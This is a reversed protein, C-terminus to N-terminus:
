KAISAARFEECSAELNWKVVLIASTAIIDVPVNGVNELSKAVGIIV